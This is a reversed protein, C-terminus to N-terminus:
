VGRCWEMHIHTHTKGLNGIHKGIHEQYCRVRKGYEKPFKTRREGEFPPWLPPFMCKLIYDEKKPLRWIKKKKKKKTRRKKKKKKKKRLSPGLLNHQQLFYIFLYFKPPV